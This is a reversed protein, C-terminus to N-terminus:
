DFFQFTVCGRMPCRRPTGAKAPPSILSHRLGNEFDRMLKNVKGIESEKVPLRSCALKSRTKTEYSQPLFGQFERIHSAKVQSLWDNLQDSTARAFWELVKSSWSM